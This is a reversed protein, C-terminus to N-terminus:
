KIRKLFARVSVGLPTHGTHNPTWDVQGHVNVVIGVVATPVTHHPPFSRLTAM